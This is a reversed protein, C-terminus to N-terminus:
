PRGDPRNSLPMGSHPPPALRATPALDSSQFSPDTPSAAPQFAPMPLYSPCGEPYYLNIGAGFRRRHLIAPEVRLQAPHVGIQRGIRQWLVHHGQEVLQLGGLRLFLWRTIPTSVEDTLRWRWRSHCRSQATFLHPVFPDASRRPFTTPYACRAAPLPAADERRRVILQRAVAVLRVIQTFSVITRAM